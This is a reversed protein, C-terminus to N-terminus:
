ETWECAVAGISSWHGIDPDLLCYSTAPMCTDEATACFYGSLDGCMDDSKACARGSCDAPSRCTAPVCYGKGCDCAEGSGCDAQEDCERASYPDPELSCHNSGDLFPARVFLGSTGSDVRGDSASGGDTTGGDDLSGRGEVSADESGDTAADVLRPPTSHGPSSEGDRVDADGWVSADSMESGPRHDAGCAFLLASCLAVLAPSRLFVTVDTLMWVGRCTKAHM